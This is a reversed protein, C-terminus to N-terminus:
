NCVNIKVSGSVVRQLGDGQIITSDMGMESMVIIEKGLFNISEQYVEPAVLVTDGDNALDIGSQISNVDAPVHIITAQLNPILFVTTFSFILLVKM